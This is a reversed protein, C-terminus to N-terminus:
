PPPEKIVICRELTREIRGRYRGHSLVADIAVSGFHVLERALDQPPCLLLADEHRRVGELALADPLNLRGTESLM